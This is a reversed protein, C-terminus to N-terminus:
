ELDKAFGPHAVADSFLEYKPTDDDFNVWPLRSRWFVHDDPKIRRREDLSGISVQARDPLVDEHLSVPSGCSPCFGRESEPTSRWRAPEPGLWEFAEKPFHVFGLFATGSARQCTTCHCVVVRVPDATARYKIAGCLCGGTWERLRAM